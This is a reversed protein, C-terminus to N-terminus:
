LYLYKLIHVGKIFLHDMLIGRELRLIHGGPTNQIEPLRPFVTITTTEMASRKKNTAIYRLGCCGVMMRGVECGEGPDEGM